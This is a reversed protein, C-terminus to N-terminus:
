LNGHFRAVMSCETTATSTGTLGGGKGAQGRATTTSTVNLLWSRTINPFQGATVPGVYTEFPSPGTQTAAGGTTDMYGYFFGGAGLDGAGIEQFIFTIEVSWWGPTLSPITLGVVPNAAGATLTLASSAKAYLPAKLMAEGGKGTISGDGNVTFRAINNSRLELIADTAVTSGQRIQVGKDGSTAGVQTIIAVYNGTQTESITLATGPTAGIGVGGSVTINRGVFVDRPRTAGSAGIDKTNDASFLLNGTLTGGTLPLYSGTPLGGTYGLLDNITRVMKESTPRNELRKPLPM